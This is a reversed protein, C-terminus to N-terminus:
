TEIIEVGVRQAAQILEKDRTALPLGERMALDLYAADYTTLRYTRALSMIEGLSRDGTSRDVDISLAALMHLFQEISAADLRRRRESIALINAMELTWNDPVRATETALRDRIAETAPTAEDGFCWTLAV